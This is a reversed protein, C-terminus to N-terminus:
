HLDLALREYLALHDQAVRPWSHEKAYQARGQVFVDRSTRGFAVFSEMAASLSQPDGNRFCLGLEWTRIAHGISGGDSSLMPLCYEVGSRVVGSDVVHGDKYSLLLAEAASFYLPVEKEPIFHNRLIVRDRVDYVRCLQEVDNSGDGMYTAGAFVVRLDLTLSQLAALVTAYDKGAHGVGFVLFLVPDAPLGLLQRAEDRGVRSVNRRVGVAPIYTSGLGHDLREQAIEPKVISIFHVVNRLGGLWLACRKLMTRLRGTPVGHVRSFDRLVYLLIRHSCFMGCIALPYMHGSVLLIVDGRETKMCARGLCRLSLVGVLLNVYPRTRKFRGALTPDGPHPPVYENDFLSEGAVDPPLATLPYSTVLTVVVQTERLAMALAKAEESFHGPYHSFPEVLTVNM